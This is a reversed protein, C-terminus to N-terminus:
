PCALLKIKLYRGEAFAPPVPFDAPLGREAVLRTSRRADDSGHGIANMLEDDTLKAANSVVLLYGGPAVVELSAAVLEEFDRLASFVKGKVSSFPPPDVVVLDFTEERRRMKELTAFVDATIPVCAEPDLGSAELNARCRAHASAAADVNIVKTAGGRVARIGISGTFSFLNLVRRGKALREVMERGERLDVFLGPSVPATVDVVYTLGDETVEVSPPAPKGAMHFAPARRDEPTVPRLRDQLYIGAPSLREDLIRVLREVWAEAGLSYKYVVLYDGFKEVAVGPLRDGEGHIWRFATGREPLGAAERYRVAADVRAAIEEDSWSFESRRSVIRLAVAGSPEVLGQALHVGDADSIPVLHGAEVGELDRGLSDRFVWPHGARVMRAAVDSVKAGRGRVM